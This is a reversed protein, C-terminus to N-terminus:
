LLFLFLVNREFGCGVQNLVQESVSTPAHKQGMCGHMGSVGGKLPQQLSMVVRTGM